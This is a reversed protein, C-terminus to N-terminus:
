QCVEFAANEYSKSQVKDSIAHMNNVTRRDEHPAGTDIFNSPQSVIVAATEAGEAKATHIPGSTRINRM